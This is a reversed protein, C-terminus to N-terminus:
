FSHHFYLHWLNGGDGLTVRKVLLKDSSIEYKVSNSIDKGAFRWVPSGAADDPTGCILEMSADGAYVKVGERLFRKPAKQLSITTYLCWQHHFIAHLDILTLAPQIRVVKLPLAM